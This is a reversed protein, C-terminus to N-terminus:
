ESRSLSEQGNNLKSPVKRSQSPTPVPEGLGAKVHAKNPSPIVSEQKKSLTGLRNRSRELVKFDSLQASRRRSSVRAPCSWGGVHTSLSMRPSFRLPTRGDLRSSDRM